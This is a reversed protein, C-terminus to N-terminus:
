SMVAADAAKFQVGDSMEFWFTQPPRRLEVEGVHSADGCGDVQDTLAGWPLCSPGAWESVRSEQM